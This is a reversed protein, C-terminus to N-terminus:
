KKSSFADVVYRGAAYIGLSALTGVAVKAKVTNRNLYLKYLGYSAASLALAGVVTEKSGVNEDILTGLQSVGQSGLDVASKLFGPILKIGDITKEGATEVASSAYSSVTNVTSTYWAGQAGSALLAGSMTLLMLKKKM